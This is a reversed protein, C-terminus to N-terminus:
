LYDPTPIGLLYGQVEECGHSDLFAMQRETEVGKACCSIGLRRAMQITQGMVENVRRDDNLRMMFSRDFKIQDVPFNALRELSSYGAGFDDLAVHVGLARLRSLEQYALDRPGFSRKESLEIQLREPALGTEGLLAEVTVALNRKALWTPSINVCVRLPHSWGSAATCAARLSWLDITEILGAEEACRIFIEPPVQGSEPREWRLLAELAVVTQTGPAIIPMWNLSFEQREPAKALDRELGSTGILAAISTTTARREHAGGHRRVDAMAADAAQLLAASDDGDEPYFAWGISFAPHVVHGHIPTPRTLATRIAAILSRTTVLSTAPPSVVLLNGGGAYALFGRPPIMAQVRRIAADIVLNSTEWGHRLNLANLHDLDIEIVSFTSKRTETPATGILHQIHAGCQGRDPLDPRRTQYGQKGLLSRACVLLSPALERITSESVSLPIRALLTLDRDLALGLDYGTPTRDLYLDDSGAIVSKICDVTIDAIGMNQNALEVLEDEADFGCICIATANLLRRAIEVIATQPQLVTSASM